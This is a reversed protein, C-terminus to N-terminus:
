QQADTRGIVTLDNRLRQCPRRRCQEGTWMTEHPL